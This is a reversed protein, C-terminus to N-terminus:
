LVDDEGGERGGERREEEGVEVKGDSLWCRGDCVRKWRKRRKLGDNEMEALVDRLSFYGPEKAGGGHPM